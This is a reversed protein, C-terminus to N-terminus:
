GGGITKRWPAFFGTYCEIATTDDCDFVFSWAADFTDAIYRRYEIMYYANDCWKFIATGNIREGQITMEQATVFGNAMEEDMLKKCMALSTSVVTGRTTYGVYYQKPRNKM